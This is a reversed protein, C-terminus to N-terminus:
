QGLRRRIRYRPARLPIPVSPRLALRGKGAEVQLRAAAAANQPTQMDAAM